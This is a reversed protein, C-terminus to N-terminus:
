LASGARTGSCKGRWRYPLSGHDLHCFYSYGTSGSGDRYGSHQQYDVGTSHHFEAVIDIGVTSYGNYPQTYFCKKTRWRPFSSHYCYGDFFRNDYVYSSNEDYSNSIETETATVGFQEFIIYKVEGLHSHEPSGPEASATPAFMLSAVLSLFVGGITTSAARKM